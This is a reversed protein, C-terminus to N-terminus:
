EKRILKGPKYDKAVMGRPLRWGNAAIRTIMKNADEFSWNGVKRFGRSELLRIQKPTAFGMERRKIVRDILLSAKGSNDIASANIGMKELTEIQAESPPAQESLFSPVYNALDEDAISMEFQLPDM